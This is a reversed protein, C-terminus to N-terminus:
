SSQAWPSFIEVFALCVFGECQGVFVIGLFSVGGRLMVEKSNGTSLSFFFIFVFRISPFNLHFM